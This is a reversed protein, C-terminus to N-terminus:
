QRLQWNAPPVFRSRNEGRQEPALNQFQSRLAQQGPLAQLFDTWKLDPNHGLAAEYATTIKGRQGQVWNSFPDYGGGWPATWAAYAANMGAGPQNYYHTGGYPADLWGFGFPSGYTSQPNYFPNQSGQPAYPNQQQGQGIGFPPM